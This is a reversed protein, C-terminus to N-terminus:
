RSKLNEEHIDFDWQNKCIIAMDLVPLPKYDVLYKDLSNRFNRQDEQSNPVTITHKDGSKPHCSWQVSFKPLKGRKLPPALFM